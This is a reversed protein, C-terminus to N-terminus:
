TRASAQGNRARLLIESVHDAVEREGLGYPWFEKGMVEETDEVQEILWPLMM